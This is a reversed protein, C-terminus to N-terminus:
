GPRPTPARSLGPSPKANPNLENKLRLQLEKENKYNNYEDRTPMTPNLGPDLGDFQQMRLLLPHSPIDNTMEEQNANNNSMGEEPTKGSAHVRAFKQHGAQELLRRQYEEQPTEERLFTDSNGTNNLNQGSNYRRQSSSQISNNLSVSGPSVLKSLGRAAKVLTGVRNKNM